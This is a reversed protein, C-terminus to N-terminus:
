FIASLIPRIVPYGNIALAGIPVGVLELSSLGRNAFAKNIYRRTKDHEPEGNRIKLGDKRKEIMWYSRIILVLTILSVLVAVLLYPEVISRVPGDFLMGARVFADLITSALYFLVAANVVGYLSCSVGERKAWPVDWSIRKGDPTEKSALLLVGATYGRGLALIVFFVAFLFAWDVDRVTEM